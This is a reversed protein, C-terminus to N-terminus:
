AAEATCGHDSTISTTRRFAVEVVNLAKELDPFVEGRTM